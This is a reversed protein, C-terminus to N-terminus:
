FSSNIKSFHATIKQESQEVTLAEPLSFHGSRTRCLSALYAGSHLKQGFDHAISRIYTGKSCVVRF